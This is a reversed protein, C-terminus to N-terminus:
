LEPVDADAPDTACTSYDRTGALTRGDSLKVRIRLSVPGKPIGRLDVLARVRSGFRVPVRKGRVRAVVGVARTGVPIRLRVWFRRRSVCPAPTLWSEGAHLLKTRGTRFSKVLVAGEAVKFLTGDPREETMWHTGRVTAAGNRGVTRFRGKATAWVRSRSSAAAQARSTGAGVGSGELDVEVLSDDRSQHTTFQGDSFEGWMYHGYVDRDGGTHTEYELRVVGDSTDFSTDVPVIDKHALAHRKAGKGVYVKGQVVTARQTLGIIPQAEEVVGKVEIQPAETPTPTATPTPAELCPPDAAGPVSFVHGRPDSNDLAFVNGRCDAAVAAVVNMGEHTTRLVGDPSFVGVRNLTGQALLVDGDPAVAIGRVNAAPWSAVLTGDGADRHGARRLRM